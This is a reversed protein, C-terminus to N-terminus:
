FLFRCISYLSYLSFSGIMFLISSHYLVLWYFSFSCFFTGHPLEVGQGTRAGERGSPCTREHVIIRYLITYYLIITYYTIAYTITHHLINCYLLYYITSLINYHLITCYLVTCYLITYYLITYYLITYYLIPLYGGLQSLRWSEIIHLLM